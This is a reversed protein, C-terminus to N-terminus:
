KFLMCSFGCKWISHLIKWSAFIVDFLQYKWMHTCLHFAPNRVVYVTGVFLISRRVIKDKRTEDDIYELITMKARDPVIHDTRFIMRWKKGGRKLWRSLVIIYDVPGLRTLLRNSIGRLVRVISHTRPRLESVPGCFFAAHSPHRHLSPGTLWNGLEPYVYMQSEGAYPFERRYDQIGCTMSFITRWNSMKKDRSIMWDLKQVLLVEPLVGWISLTSQLRWGRLESAM